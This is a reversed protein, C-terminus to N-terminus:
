ATRDNKRKVLHRRRLHGPATKGSRELYLGGEFHSLSIAQVLECDHFGKFNEKYTQIAQDTFGRQLYYLIRSSVEQDIIKDPVVVATEIKDPVVVATEIKDPVVVATEIKDPVVVATEIKDPVEAATEINDPFVDTISKEKVADDAPSIEEMAFLSFPLLLLLIVRKCLEM